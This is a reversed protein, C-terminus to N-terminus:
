KKREHSLAWAKVKEAIWRRQGSKKVGRASPIELVKPFSPLVATYQTFTDPSIRLYKACQKSDWLDGDLTVDTKQATIAQTMAEANQILAQTLKEIAEIEQPQM